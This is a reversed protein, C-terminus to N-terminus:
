LAVERIPLRIRFLSGVGSTSQVEISGNHLDVIEKVIALGLGTGHIQSQRVNRGRYFREFVHELDEAEIGVGTDQVELCIQDTAEEFHVRVSGKPTYHVANTVLNSIMRTIQNQDGWLLPLNPYPEFLLKINSAAAMPQHATVVQEVISNLDLRSFEVRKSKVRALRSLDLIDEVLKNLLLSQEKVVSIYRKRKEPPADEFLQLYLEINTIPTRLEHSVDAIFVDKMRDLEKQKTIDRQSGVYSVIQRDQDSVPAITFQVDYLRGEKHRNLLEGSWVEGRMLTAQMEELKTSNSDEALLFVFNQGVVETASYGSQKEFAPNVTTIRRQLDTVIVGDGVSGLIAEVREKADHLEATRENVRQELVEAHEKLRTYLYINEILPGIQLVVSRLIDLDESSFVDGGLKPGLALLGLVRGHGIVPVWLHIQESNLLELEEPTLTVQSLLKKLNKRETVGIKLLYTLSSRPLVPYLHLPGEGLDNRSAVEIVSFEGSASSLFVCTEELQFTDVLRQALTKALVHLETIMELGQTIQLLGLRYDYWGGYFMRDVFRQIQSRLPFFLSALVLVVLTNVFPTDALSASLFRGLLYSLILYIGGLISYVLVYTAGRNVHREIEILHLRLIAYGYTLPLMGLWLFMIQYSFIPKQLLADPLVTLFVFPIAAIGGGLVVLRVKARVGPFSARRYNLFLLVVVLILNVGLFLRNASLFLPYWPKSRLGIPGWLIFPTLGLFTILYLLGILTKRGAFQISQPFHMHFHVSLPGIVWLMCAFLMTTWAPGLYSAVGATFIFACAQCWLFFLGAAGDAPKFTLVGLGLGWFILAIFMPTINILINSLSQDVLNYAVYFESGGRNIGFVVLDGGRKGDYSTFDSWPKEDISTVIDGPLLKGLAPGTLDIEKILGTPHIYSIGDYPYNIVQLITWVMVAAVGLPIIFPLSRWWRQDTIKKLSNWQSMM